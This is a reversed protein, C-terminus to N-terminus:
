RWPCTDNPAREVPEQLVGDWGTHHIAQHTKNLCTILNEPDTLKPSHNRIDEITIPNLHHIRVLRSNQIERGEIGLDCANDRLIVARRVAKWEESKYFVQNLYRENGFTKAGVQGGVYLYDFREKFTPLRILETYTKIM